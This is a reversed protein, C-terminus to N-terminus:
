GRRASCSMWGGSSIRAAISFASARRARGASGHNQFGLTILLRSHQTRFPIPVSRDCVSFTRLCRLDQACFTVCLRAQQTGLSLRLGDLTNSCGSPILLGHTIERRQAVNVAKLQDGLSVAAAVLEHKHGILAAADEPRETADFLRSM